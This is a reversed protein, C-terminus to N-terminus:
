ARRRMIRWIYIFLVGSLLAGLNWKVSKKFLDLRAAKLQAEQGTLQTEGGQVINELNGKIQKVQEDNLQPVPRQNGLDRLIKKLDAQTQSKELNEKVGSVQTKREQLQVMQGNNVTLLRNTNLLTLPITLLYFVGLVLALWPLIPLILREKSNRGIERGVYIFGFAFLVIPVSEVLRGVTQFEWGPNTLRLPVLTDIFELFVFVLLVYGIARLIALSWLLAKSNAAPLNSTNTSSVPQTNLKSTQM